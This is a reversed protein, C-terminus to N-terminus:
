IGRATRTVEAQGAKDEPLSGLKSIIEEASNFSDKFFYFSRRSKEDRFSLSNLFLGKQFDLNKISENKAEYTRFHFWRRTVFLLKEHNFCMYGISNRLGNVGKSAVCKVVLALKSPDCRKWIHNEYDDPMAERFFAETSGSTHKAILGRLANLEVRLMRFLRPALWVFLALFVLAAAFMVRPHKLSLWTGALTLSDEALSLGVNSFPEPSHNVLLRTGAKTSHSAVAAGGCLVFALMQTAPDLSGVAAVGLVAAGLPRIFTHISDWLSDVWPVKDAFFEMLYGIGATIIIAPNSLVALHSLSPDLQLLGFRVGLGVILVTAYLRLGAMLGLGTISGLLAINDM